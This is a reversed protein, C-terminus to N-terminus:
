TLNNYVLTLWEEPYDNQWEEQVAGKTSQISEIFLKINYKKGQYESSLNSNVDFLLKVSSLTAGTSLVGNYYYKGSTSRTFNNGDISFSLYEENIEGEIYFELWMKFVCSTSTNPNKINITRTSRSGLNLEEASLIISDNGIIDIDLKHQKFQIIGTLNERDYMLALTINTAILIVSLISLLYIIIKNSKTM